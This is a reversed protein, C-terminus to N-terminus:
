RRVAMKKMQAQSAKMDAYGPPDGASVAMKVGGEPMGGDSPMAVAPAATKFEDIIAIVQAVADTVNAILKSFDPHAQQSEVAVQVADNLAVLAKNVVIIAQDYRLQAKAAVDASLYPKVGTWVVAAIDLTTKVTNEFTQVQAIPDNKFNNFWASSCSTMSVTMLILAILSIYKKM